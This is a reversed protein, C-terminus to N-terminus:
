YIYRGYPVATSQSRQSGLHLYAVQDFADILLHPRGFAVAVRVVVSVVVPVLISTYM